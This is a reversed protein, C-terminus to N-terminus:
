EIATKLIFILVSLTLLSLATSIFITTTSTAIGVRYRQAFLYTNVGTPLASLLIAVYAWLTPVDFVWFALLAVLLPHIVLKLITLISSEPLNGAIRYQSLSAGMAFLACPLAAQGMIETIQDIISPFPCM